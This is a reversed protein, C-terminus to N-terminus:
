VDVVEISRLIMEEGSILKGGLRGCGPCDGILSKFEFINGCKTCRSRAPVSFISLEAGEARTGAALIGFAFRLSESVIGAAAGIGLNLRIVRVKDSGLRREVTELVDRAISVEHM